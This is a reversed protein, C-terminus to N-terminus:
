KGKKKSTLPRKQIIKLFTEVVKPDLEEGSQEKIHAITKEESWAKRYPRDSRLADWIDVLAFIRAELPIQEGKLGRPYGSGNWREHHCYPITLAPQLYEIDKLVNYAYVPHRKMIQWEVSTLSSPKFLITDPVVLKGIDHLLAGRRLHVMSEEPLGMQRAIKLTMEVVRQTHGETEKDRIDMTRSWGEITADYARTLSIHSAQLDAVLRSSDIAIAAQGALLNAFDKWDQDILLPKRTMCELVGKVENNAMLPFAYYSVIKEFGPLKVPSEDYAQSIDPIYIPQGTQASRGAWGEGFKLSFTDLMNARFGKGATFRLEKSAKDFLLISAADVNLTSIVSDLVLNLIEHLNFTSTIALDIDRLAILKELRQQTQEHLASRQIANAAIDVVSRLVRLEVATFVTDRGLWITGYVQKQSIMPFCAASRIGKLPKVGLIVPDKTPDTSIYPKGTRKVEGSMGKGPPLRYGKRLPTAGSTYEVVMEHTLPNELALSGAQAHMTEMLQDIIIPFMEQRTQAKRLASSVQSIAEMERFHQKEETIDRLIALTYKEGFLQYISVNVELDFVTGDRRLARIEYHAPAPKNAFRARTYEEFKVVDSPAILSQISIGTTIDKKSFGFLKRFAKNAYVNLDNQSVSIADKSAEFIASLRTERDELERYANQRSIASTFTGALTRFADLEAIDWDRNQSVVDFGILGITSENMMIPVIAISGIGLITLDARERAPFDSIKGVLMKGKKLVNQWREWTSRHSAIELLNPNELHNSIGERVWIFLNDPIEDFNFKGHMRPYMLFYARDVGAALGLKRLVENAPERWETSKLLLSATEGVAKLIADRRQLTTEARKRETIDRGTGLIMLPTGDGARIVTFTVDEWFMSGDKRVLELEGFYAVTIDKQALREPTMQIAVQEMVNHYSAPSLQKELPLKQLEELTYGRSKTVSPSIYTYQFNMDMLIVTDSMNETILRYREESLRLAEQAERQDTIDLGVNQLEIVNGQGDFVASNDWRFWRIGKATINRNEAHSYHPPKKVADIVNVISHREEPLIMRSINTGLLEERKKDLVRCFEDNVFTLNGLLDTRSIISTQNEVLSRYRSESVRIAEQAERQETIDWGVNQMEIIKGHPDLIASNDWHFWRIGLPTINQNELQSHYPPTMASQIAQGVMHRDEPLVMLPTQTGILEDQKKGFVRCFEDNVFTLNGELDMRSIVATQNEVLSRYRAESIRIAEENRKRETIDMISIIVKSLTEEYGPAVTWHLNIHIKQGDLTQNVTEGEFDYNGEAIHLIEDIVGISSEECFLKGLNELLDQKSAAKYLRVTARNVDLIKVRKACEVIIDPHAMFYNKFNRIGKKKLGDIFQKVYSFDEEWLSIPSNEFLGRYRKEAERLRDEAVKRETVDRVAAQILVKDGYKIRSLSVEADFITGDAKKHQWAFLQKDTRMAADLMKKSAPISKQGDSQFEPSINAPTKGIIEKRSYGLLDETRQNCDMFVGNELILIADNALNFLNRYRRESERIEEQAKRNATIDVYTVLVRSLTSEYGGPVSLSLDFIVDEGKMNKSPSESQFGYKGEALCILEELFVNLSAETFFRQLNRIVEDKSSAKLLKVSMENVQLVKILTLYEKLIAPHTSFYKRFDKVGHKKLLDLRIKLASWDEEWIAIPAHEFIARFGAESEKLANEVRHRETVDLIMGDLYLPKGFSDIVPRGREWLFRIEGDKRRIRYEGSYPTNQEIAKRVQSIFLDNDEAIVLKGMWRGMKVLEDNSYGTIPLAMENFLQIRNNEQLYDRYVMGPLNQALTRYAIESERLADEAKKRETIDTLYGNFRTIKGNEDRNVITYDHVWFVQGLPSLIRYEREFFSRDEKKRLEAEKYVRKSDDPHIIDIYRPHGLVLDEPQYGFRTVNPSIYELTWKSDNKWTCAIVPGALYLNRERELLERTIKRETIEQVTGSLRIVKGSSDKHTRGISWVWILGRTPHVIGFEVSYEKGQSIAEQVARDMKEWDEPLLYQKHELWSPEGLGPQRGFITYMEPSWSTKDRAVDYEWSGLHAVAQADILDTESKLIREETLKRDTIDIFTSFTGNFKGEEDKTPQASVITWILNGDKRRFCREYQQGFGKKRAEMKNRHDLLQDESMFATVSKGLLEEQTYGLMDMMRQNVFTIRFQDDTTWIGENSMEVILRYREESKHQAVEALHRLTVDSIIGQHYLPNGRDDRVVRTHEEVWRIEKSKTIIRYRLDFQDLEEAIANEVDKKLEEFDDPHVLDRDFRLKGSNFDDVPYGFQAINASLFLPPEDFKLPWRTVINPSENIISELEERRNTLEKLAEEARVRETIDRAIGELAILRGEGDKVYTGKAEVWLINGNRAIWRLRIPINYSEPDSVMKEFLRLDDPHVIETMLHPNRYFEDPSYNVFRITAPSIYDFGFDPYFRLRFVVDRANEALLRFREESARLAQQERALLVRSFAAEIISPLFQYYGIQKIIYNEAGLKIAEVALKEDAHNAILVIPQIIHRVQKLERLVDVAEHNPLSCDLVLVDVDNNAKDQPFAKLVEAASDVIQLKISPTVSELHKETLEADARNPEVFLVRILDAKLILTSRVKGLVEEVIDPIKKYYDLKKIIYASAGRSVAAIVEQEEAQGSVLVVPQIFGHKKLDILFTLGTGDPLHFDTLFLDYYDNPHSDIQQWAESCSEAMEIAYADKKQSTFANRTLEFDNPNDELYLIRMDGDGSDM